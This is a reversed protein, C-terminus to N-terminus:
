ETLFLRLKFVFLKDAYFIVKEAHLTWFCVHMTVIIIREVQTVKSYCYCPMYPTVYNNYKRNNQGCRCMLNLANWSSLRWPQSFAIAVLIRAVTFIRLNCKRWVKHQKLLFLILIMLGGDHVIWWVDVNGELRETNSPFAETSRAM